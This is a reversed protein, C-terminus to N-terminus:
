KNTSENLKYLQITEGLFSTVRIPLIPSDDFLLCLQKGGYFYAANQEFTM